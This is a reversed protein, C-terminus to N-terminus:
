VVRLICLRHPNYSFYTLFHPSKKVNVTKYNNGYYHYRIYHKSYFIFITKLIQLVVFNRFYKFLDAPKRAKNQHYKVYKYKYRIKTQFRM